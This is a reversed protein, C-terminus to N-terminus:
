YLTQSVGNIKISNESIELIQETNTEQVKHLLPLYLKTMFVEKTPYMQQIEPHENYYKDSLPKGQIEYGICEMLARKIEESFNSEAVFKRIVSYDEM